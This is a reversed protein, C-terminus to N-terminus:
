SPVLITRPGYSPGFRSGNSYRLIITRYGPSLDLTATVGSANLTTTTFPADDVLIQAPAGTVGVMVIEVLRSGSEIDMTFSPPSAMVHTTTAVTPYTAGRATVTHTGASLGTFPGASWAGSANATTVIQIPGVFVTVTDGPYVNGYVIPWM